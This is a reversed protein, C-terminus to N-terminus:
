EKAEAAEEETYFPGKGDFFDKIMKDVTGDKKAEELAANMKEALETDTKRLGIAVGGGIQVNPGVFVISGGSGSVVPELFSGDALLLDINGAALDAVSQDPKEYSKITNKEKFTEEAYAAQITGGQVGIKKGEMNDFDFADGDMAAYRSPDAPFYEDSFAITEKREDTVSMGAMIMDYNGAIMNPIISDWENTVFECELEARKCLDMGLDIEYGALKGADDMFNWPAYAGETGIRVKDAAVASGTFAMMAIALPLLMKKM